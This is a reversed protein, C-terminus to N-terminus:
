AASNVTKYQMAILMELQEATILGQKYFEKYYGIKMAKILDNKCNDPIDIISNKVTSNINKRNM